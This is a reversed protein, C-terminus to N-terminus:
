SINEKLSALRNRAKYLYDFATPRDALLMGAYEKMMIRLVEDTAKQQKDLETNLLSMVGQKAEIVRECRSCDVRAGKNEHWGNDELPKFIQDLQEEITM